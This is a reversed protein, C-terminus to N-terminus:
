GLERSRGVRRGRRRGRPNRSRALGPFSDPLEDFRACPNVGLVWMRGERAIHRMTAVWGEGPALTPAVWIDVGQAYIYTRALPMYNEWCILGGVRGFPTDIRGCIRAM